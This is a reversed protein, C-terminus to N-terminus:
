QDLHPTPHDTAIAPSDTNMHVPQHELQDPIEEEIHQTDAMSRTQVGM